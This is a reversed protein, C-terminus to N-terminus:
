PDPYDGLPRQSPARQAQSLEPVPAGFARAVIQATGPAYGLFHNNVVIYAQRADQGHQDLNAKWAQITPTDDRQIHDFQTLQRDGVFRLYLFDTTAVPPSQGYRTVSWTLCARHRRLLDYTEPTWWSANRLEIALRLDRPYGKLFAELAPRDQPAQFRPGMQALLPGLKHADRLPQLAELTADLLLQPADLHQEHTLHSPLKATFLFGQPTEDAWRQALSPKPLSYYTSDIETLDFVRAYRALHDRPSADPPYFPGRWDPYGWGTCGIRLHPM